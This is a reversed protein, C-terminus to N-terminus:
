PRRVEYGSRLAEYYAANADERRKATLDAAVRSAVEAFPPQAQPLAQELKVLHWGYASPLPGQWDPSPRLQALAEAFQRGFLDGVARESREAYARQLMFPDGKAQPNVLAAEADAQANARRDTSFYRHRFSYRAPLRYREANADHFARLEADSPPQSAAIDETLFNLKQVLRRRVIIDGQDLSLRLAERFYIEEQIFSEILGELEEATPSRGMQASWQQTLRNVEAANVDIARDAADGDLLSAATFLVAGLGLFVILPDKLRNRVQGLTRM